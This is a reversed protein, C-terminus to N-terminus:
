RREELSAGVWRPAMRGDLLGTKGEHRALGVRELGEDIRQLVEEAQGETALGILYDDVWRVFPLGHLGGDVAHLVLNALVASGPPGVPLGRRGTDGWAEVAGSALRAEEAEVGAALLVRALVPPSVSGYFDRVDAALLVPRGALARLARRLRGRAEAPGELRWSRGASRTRSAVVQAGLRPEVASAVRGALEHWAVADRESLRSLM